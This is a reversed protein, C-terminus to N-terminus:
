KAVYEPMPEQLFHAEIAKGLWERHGPEGHEIKGLLEPILDLFNNLDFADISEAEVLAKIEDIRYLLRKSM